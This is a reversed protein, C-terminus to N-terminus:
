RPSGPHLVLLTLAEGAAPGGGHVAPLYATWRRPYAQYVWYAPKPLRNGDVLGWDAPCITQPDSAITEPRVSFRAAMFCYAGSFASM